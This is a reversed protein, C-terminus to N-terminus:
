RVKDLIRFFCHFIYGEINFQKIMLPFNSLQTMITFLLKIHVDNFTISSNYM